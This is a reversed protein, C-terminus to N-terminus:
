EDEKEQITPKLGEIIHEAEIRDEKIKNALPLAKAFKVLDAEELLGKLKKIIEDNIQLTDIKKFDIITELLEDTTHELAPIHLEEEIYKRVIDTLEIYYLKIKHNKLLQKSDLNKLRTLAQIYPPIKPKRKISIKKKRLLLYVILGILAIALLVWWLYPVVDDFVYPEKQINKIPYMKQKTTDVKVTAVKILLSDTYYPVQNVLVKQQPIVYNGSDFSTISYKKILNNKLTDISSSVVELKSISDLKPFIVNDIKNVGVQYIIQEGIRIHTTDVSTTVTIKQQAFTTTICGLFFIIYGLKTKM